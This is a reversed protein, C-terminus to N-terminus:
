ALRCDRNRDARAVAWECLQILVQLEVDDFLFAESASGERLIKTGL